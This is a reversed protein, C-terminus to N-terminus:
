FLIIYLFLVVSYVVVWSFSIIIFSYAKKVSMEIHDLNFSNCNFFFLRWYILSKCRDGLITKLWVPSTFLSLFLFLKIETESMVCAKKNRKLLPSGPYEDLTSMWSNFSPMTLHCRSYMVRHNTIWTATDLTHPRTKDESARTCLM